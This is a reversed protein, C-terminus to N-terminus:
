ESSILSGQPLGNPVACPASKYDDFLLMTSRESLFSRILNVIQDPVRKSKLRHILHDHSVSPFAQSIDMLLASAVKGVRWADKIRQTLLLLADVTCRSPRGSFQNPSLLGNAEAFGSLWETLVSEIVKGFSEEEAIPRYAGPITYDSKGPKRLTVTLFVRWSAPFYGLRMGAELINLLTPVLIERASAIAVNPIGSPGPAKWPSIKRIARLIHDLTFVPSPHPAPMPGLPPPLVDPRPPFFKRHLVDAKQAPSSVVSGDPSTLDPICSPSSSSSADQMAYKAAKWINGRPLDTVYQRWHARKERRIASHYRNKAARMEAWSPDGPDDKAIANHARNYEKRLLSLSKNWWRHAYPSPHSLPVHEELALVITNTLADTYADIDRRTSLPLQPLPNAALHTKLRAPFEKWDTDRFNRRLPIERHDV